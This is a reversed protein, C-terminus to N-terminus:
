KLKEKEKLEKDGLKGALFTLLICLILPILGWKTKIM